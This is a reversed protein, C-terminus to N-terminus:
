IGTLYGPNKIKQIVESSIKTLECFYIMTNSIEDMV